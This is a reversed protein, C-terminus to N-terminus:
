AEKRALMINTISVSIIMSLIYYIIIILSVNLAISASNPFFMIALPIGMGLTKMSCSFVLSIRDKIEFKFCKTMGIVFLVLIIAFLIVAVTPILLDTFVRALYGNSQAYGIYSYLIIFISYNSVIKASKELKSRFKFLCQGVAFPLIMKVMLSEIISLIGVAMEFQTRLILSIVFPAVFVGLLQSVIVNYMSLVKNGGFSETLMIGLSITTALASVFILGIMSEKDSFPLFVKYLVLALLPSIIFLVIQSFGIEKWKSVGRVVEKTDMSIGIGLYMLMILMTNIWERDHIFSGVSPLVLGMLITIFLIIFFKSQGKLNM